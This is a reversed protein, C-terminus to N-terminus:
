KFLKSLKEMEDALEKNDDRDLIDQVYCWIENAKPHDKLGYEALVAQKYQEDIQKREEDYAKQDEKYQALKEEYNKVRDAFAKIYAESLNTIDFEPRRPYSPYPIKGQKRYINM